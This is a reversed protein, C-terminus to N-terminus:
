YRKLRKICCKPIHLLGMVMFPNYTHCITIQDKDEDFLWGITRCVMLPACISKADEESEWSDRIYSDYWELYIKKKETTM